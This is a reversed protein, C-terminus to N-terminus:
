YLIEKKAGYVKKSGRKSGRKSSTTDDIVVLRSKLIWFKQIYSNFCTKNLSMDQNTAGWFVPNKFLLM